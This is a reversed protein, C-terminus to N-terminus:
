RALLVDSEQGTISIFICLYGKLHANRHRRDLRIKLIHEVLDTNATFRFQAQFEDIEIKFFYVRVLLGRDPEQGMNEVDGRSGGLPHLGLPTKIKDPNNYERRM